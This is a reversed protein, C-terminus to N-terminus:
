VDCICQSFYILLEDRSTSQPLLGETRYSMKICLDYNESMKLLKELLEHACFLLSENFYDMESRYNFFRNPPLSRSLNM